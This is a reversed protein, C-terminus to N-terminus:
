KKAKRAKRGSKRPAAARIKAGPTKAEPYPAASLIKYHRDPYCRVLTESTEDIISYVITGFAGTTVLHQIHSYSVGHAKAYERLTIWEPAPNTPPM